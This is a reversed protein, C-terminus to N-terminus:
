RTAVVTRVRERFKAFAPDFHEIVPESPFGVLVSEGGVPCTYRDASWIQYPGAATDFEVLEGTRSCAMEVGHDACVPRSM